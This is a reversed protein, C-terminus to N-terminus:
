KPDGAEFDPLSGEAAIAPNEKDMVTSEEEAALRTAIRDMLRVFALYDM